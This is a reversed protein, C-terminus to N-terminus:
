KKRKRGRKSKKKPKSEEDSSTPPSDEIPEEEEDDDEVEADIVTLPKVADRPVSSVDAAQGFGAPKERPPAFITPAPETKAATAAASGAAVPEFQLSSRVAVSTATTVINNVFWYVSLAAPVNLAFWGILVPLIKLVINNQQQDGTKPQMLEMSAFQSVVLLVPLILFAVTDDWGLAPGADTRFLSPCLHLIDRDVQGCSYLNLEQISSVM